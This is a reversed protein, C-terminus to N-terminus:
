QHMRYAAIGTKLRCYLCLWGRFFVLFRWCCSEKTKTKIKAVSISLLRKSGTALDKVVGVLLGAVLPEVAGAGLGIVVGIVAGKTLVEKRRRSVM